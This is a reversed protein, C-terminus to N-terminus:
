NTSFLRDLLLQSEEALETFLVGMGAPDVEVRVVQGVGEITKIDDMILSFRLNVQTGIPLPFKSKIFAGTRSINTVYEHIFADFLEFERNIHLRNSLRSRNASSYMHNLQTHM